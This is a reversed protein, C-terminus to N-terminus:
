QLIPNQEKIKRSTDQLSIDRRVRYIVISYYRTYLSAHIADLWSTNQSLEESAAETTAYVLLSKPTLIRFAKILSTLREGNVARDKIQLILESPTYKIPERLVIKLPKLAKPALKVSEPLTRARILKKPQQPAKEPAKKAIDAYSPQQKPEQNQSKPAKERNQPSQTGQTGQAQPQPQPQLQPQTVQVTAQTSKATCNYPEKEVREERGQRPQDRTQGKTPPVNQQAAHQTQQENPNGAVYYSNQHTKLFSLIDALTLITEESGFRERLAREINQVPAM